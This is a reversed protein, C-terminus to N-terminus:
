KLWGTVSRLLALGDRKPVTRRPTPVYVVTLSTPERLGLGAALAALRDRSQLQAIRDDLRMTEEQLATRQEIARALEYHTRTENALLLLYGLLCLTLAGTVVVIRGVIGHHRRRVVNRRRETASRGARSGGTVPVSEIPHWVPQAIM